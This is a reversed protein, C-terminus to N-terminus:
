FPIEEQTPAFGTEKTEELLAKLRLGKYVKYGDRVGLAFGHSAMRDQMNRDAVASLNNYKCFENYETELDTKKVSAKKDVVCCESVFAYITDYKSRYRQM